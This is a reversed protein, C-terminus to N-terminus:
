TASADRQSEAGIMRPDDSPLEFLSCKSVSAEDSTEEVDMIKGDVLAM